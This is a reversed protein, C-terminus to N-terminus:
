VGEFSEAAINRRMCFLYLFIAVRQVWVEESKSWAVHESYRSLSLQLLNFLDFFGTVLFLTDGVRRQRSDGCISYDVYWILCELVLRHDVTDSCFDFLSFVKADCPCRRWRARKESWDNNRVTAGALRVSRLWWQPLGIILDLGSRRVVVPCDASLADTFFAVYEETMSIHSILTVEAEFSPLLFADCAPIQRQM